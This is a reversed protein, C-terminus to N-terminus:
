RPAGAADHVMDLLLQLKKSVPPPTQFPYFDPHGMSRTMANMALSVPLWSRLVVDGQGPRYAADQPTDGLGYAAATEVGDVIHLMHAWTEAFDEWPHATAYASVFHQNWDLPAGSAYHRRLAEDYDQRDDGFDARVRDERGGDGVLM